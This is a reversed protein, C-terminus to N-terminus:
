CQVGFFSHFIVPLPSDGEIYLFAKFILSVLYHFELLGWNFEIFFFEKSVISVFVDFELLGSLKLILLGKLFLFVYM